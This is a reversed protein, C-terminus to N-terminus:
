SAVAASSLEPAPQSPQVVNEHYWAPGKKLGEALPTFNQFGLHQRTYGLGNETGYGSRRETRWAERTSLIKMYIPEGRGDTLSM